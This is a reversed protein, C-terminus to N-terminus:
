HETFKHSHIKKWSCLFTQVTFLILHLCGKDYICILISPGDKALKSVSFNTESQISEAKVQLCKFPRLEDLVSGCSSASSFWAKAHHDPSLRCGRQWRHLDLFLLSLCRSSFGAWLYLQTPQYRRHWIRFLEDLILKLENLM